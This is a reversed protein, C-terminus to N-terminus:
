PMASAPTGESRYCLHFSFKENKYATLEKLEPKDTVKEDIFCKQLSSILRANLM